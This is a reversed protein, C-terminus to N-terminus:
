IKRNLQKKYKSKLYRTHKRWLRKSCSHKIWGKYSMLQSLSPKSKSTKIFKLAISKRLRTTNYKFCYGVFGLGQKQVDVVQLNDKIELKYQQLTSKIVKLANRLFIKTDALLM